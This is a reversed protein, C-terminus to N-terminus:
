LTTQPWAVLMVTVCANDDADYAVGVGWDTLRKDILTAHHSPSEELGHLADPLSSARAVVEGVVRATLGRRRLRDSPDDDGANHVARGIKCMLMSHKESIDDLLTNRRLSVPVGARKRLSEFWRKPDHELQAVSMPQKTLWREALVQPGASNEGLLQVKSAAMELSLKLSAHETNSAKIPYKLVAGTRTEIWLEPRVFGKRWRMEFSYVDGVRTVSLRGRDPTAVLARINSNSAVGCRVPVGYQKRMKELESSVKEANLTSSRIATLAAVDSGHAQADAKIADLSAYRGSLFRQAVRTLTSDVDCPAPQAAAVTVGSLGLM